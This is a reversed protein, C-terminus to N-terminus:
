LYSILQAIEGLWSHMYTTKVSAMVSSFKEATLSSCPCVVIPTSGDYGGNTAVDCALPMAVEVADARLM